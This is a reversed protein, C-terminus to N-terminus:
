WGSESTGSRRGWTRSPFTPRSSLPPPSVRRPRQMRPLSSRRSGRSAGAYAATAQVLVSAVQAMRQQNRIRRRERARQNARDLATRSEQAAQAALDIASEYRQQRYDRQAQNIAREASSADASIGEQYYARARQVRRGAEEMAKEAQRALSIDEMALQRAADMDGAVDGIRELLELWDGDNDDLQKRLPELQKRAAAYARNAQPRDERHHDLLDKLENAATTCQKVRAQLLQYSRVEAKAQALAEKVGRHAQELRRFIEPWHPREQSTNAEASAKLERATSALAQVDAGVIHKHEDVFTDLEELQASLEHALDGCDEREESLKKLQAGVADLLAAAQEHQQEIHILLDESHFYQQTENASRAKELLPALASLVQEAQSINEAVNRWSDPAFLQDLQERHTQAQNLKESIQGGRQTRATLAGACYTKAEQQRQIADRAREDWTCAQDIYTEAPGSEGRNLAMEAASCEQRAQAIMPDPNGEDETLALGGARQETTLQEVEDINTLAKGLRQHLATIGEVWQRVAVLDEHAGTLNEKAGLPDPVLLSRGEEVGGLAAQLEPEYPMASLGHESLAQLQDRVTATQEDCQVLLPAAQQHAEELRDLQAECEAALAEAPGIKEQVTLLSEVERLLETSYNKNNEVILKIKDHTGMMELWSQRVRTIDADTKDYLAATQGAMPETYDEDSFPLLQHRQSLKEVRDLLNVVRESFARYPETVMKRRRRQKRTRVLIMAGAGFSLIMLLGLWPPIEQEAPVPAPSPKAPAQKPTVAAPAEKAALWQETASVLAEVGDAYNGARAHPNFHPDVLERVITDDKLEARKQLPEAPRIAIRRDGTAVVILISNEPDIPADAATWANHLADAYDAAGYPQTSDLFVTHYRHSSERNTARLSQRLNAYTDPVGLVTVVDGTYPPFAPQALTFLTTALLVTSVALSSHRFVSARLFDSIRFGFVGTHHSPRSTLALAWKSMGAELKM